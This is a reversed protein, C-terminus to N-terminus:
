IVLVHLISEEAGQCVACIIHVAVKKLSLQVMSPLCGILARWVVDKAKPLIKLNWFKRWLGSSKSPQWCGKLKQLLNYM